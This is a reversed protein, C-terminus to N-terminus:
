SATARRLGSTDCEKHSIRGDATSNRCIIPFFKGAESQVLSYQSNSGIKIQQHYRRVTFIQTDKRRPNNDADCTPPTWQRNFM